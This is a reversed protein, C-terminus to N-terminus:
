DNDGPGGHTAQHPEERNHSNHVKISAERKFKVKPSLHSELLWNPFQHESLNNVKISNYAILLLGIRNNSM